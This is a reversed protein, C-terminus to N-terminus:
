IAISGTFHSNINRPKKSFYEKTKISTENSGQRVGFKILFNLDSNGVSCSFEAYFHKVVALIHSPIGYMRLIHEM